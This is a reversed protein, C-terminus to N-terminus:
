TRAELWRKKREEAELTSSTRLEVGNGKGRASKTHSERELEM